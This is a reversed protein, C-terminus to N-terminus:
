ILCTEWLYLTIIKAHESATRYNHLIYLCFKIPMFHADKDHLINSLIIKANLSNIDLHDCFPVCTKM